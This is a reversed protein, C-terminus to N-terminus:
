FEKRSFNTNLQKRNEEFNVCNIFTLIEPNKEEETYLFKKIMIM